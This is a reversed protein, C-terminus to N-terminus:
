GNIVLAMCGARCPTTGAAMAVQAASPVGIGGEDRLHKVHVVVVHGKGELVHVFGPAVELFIGHRRHHDGARERERHPLEAQPEQFPLSFAGDEVLHVQLV